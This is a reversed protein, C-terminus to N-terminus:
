ESDKEFEKRATNFEHRWLRYQFYFWSFFVLGYIVYLPRGVLERFANYQPVNYFQCLNHITALFSGVIAMRILSYGFHGKMAHKNTPTKYFVKLFHGPANYYRASIYDTFKEYHTSLRERTYRFSYQYFGYIILISILINSLVLGTWSLGFLRYLLNQEGTPHDFFWLGTSYFDCCRSFIFLLGIFVFKTKM